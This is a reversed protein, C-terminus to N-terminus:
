AKIVFTLFIKFIEASYFNIFLLFGYLIFKM